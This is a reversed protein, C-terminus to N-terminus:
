AHKGQSLASIIPCRDADGHGPCADILTRLGKRIRQLESIKQEVSQLRAQAAAKVAKVDRRGSLSLLETIDDLSFGLAKARRIFQLRAVADSSYDRYGSARRQPEPLLGSREYYRITDINVGAQQALKGITLTQM